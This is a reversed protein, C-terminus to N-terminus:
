ALELDVEFLLAGKYNDYRPTIAFTDDVFVPAESLKRHADIEDFQAGARASALQGAIDLKQKLDGIRFTTELPPANQAELGGAPALNRPVVAPSALPHGAAHVQRPGLRTTIDLPEQEIGGTALRSVTRLRHKGM